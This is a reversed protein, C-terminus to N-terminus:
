IINYLTATPVDNAQLRGSMQQQAAGAMAARPYLNRHLMVERYPPPPTGPCPITTASGTTPVLATTATAIGGGSGNGSDESNALNEQHWLHRLLSVRQSSADVSDAAEARRIRPILCSITTSLWLYTVVMTAGSGVLFGILLFWFPSVNGLTSPFIGSSGSDATQQEEQEEIAEEMLDHWPTMDWSVKNNNNPSTFSTRPLLKKASSQSESSSIAKLEIINEFKKSVSSPKRCLPEARIKNERLYLELEYTAGNCSWKNRELVVSELDPMARLVDKDLNELLNNSLDLKRLQTLGLFTDAHLYDIRCGSMNLSTITTSHLKPVHLNFKNGALNLIKLKKNSYFTDAVIYDIRNYSLDLVTLNKLHVFAELGIEGIANMSLNLYKLRTMGAKSLERDDLKSISNNSLDLAQIYSPAGTHISYLRQGTCVASPLGLWTGCECLSTCRGPQLSLPQALGVIGALVLLLNTARWM